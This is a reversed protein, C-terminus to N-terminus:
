SNDSSSVCCLPTERWYTLLVLLQGWLHQVCWSLVRRRSTDYNHLKLSFCRSWAKSIPGPFTIFAVVDRFFDLVIHQNSEIYGWPTWTPKHYRKDHHSSSTLLNCNGVHSSQDWGKKKKCYGPAVNHHLVPNPLMLLFFWKLQELHTYRSSAPTEGYFINNLPTDAM